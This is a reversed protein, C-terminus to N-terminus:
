ASKYLGAQRRLAKEAYMSQDAQHFLLAAAEAERATAFGISVRIPAETSQSNEVELLDHLRDLVKQAASEDANPLLIVFEDGGLRAVIDGRRVANRFVAAMRKLLRDGVTHGYQDNVQKLGDVDAVGLSLPFVNEQEMERLRAEFYRRNYLGTLIDHTSQYRLKRETNKHATIDRCIALGGAIQGEAEYWPSLTALLWRKEGERPQITIEVSTSQGRPTARAKDVLRNAEEPSLYERLNSSVLAGARVGFLEEAAPNVFVIEGVLNFLLTGEGQSELLLRFRAESQQLAEEARKRASIDTLVGQWVPGHTQEDWIMVAQDRVWIVSGDKRVLRYEMDFPEGTLNSQENREMVRARDDLHVIRSWLEPDSLWEQPTYGTLTEIMPSSYINSSHKDVRDVYIVASIQEVMTRYRVEASRLLEEARKQETIDVISVIVRGYDKEHGPVVQWRLLIDFREGDLRANVGHTEFAAENRALALFERLWIAQCDEPAIRQLSGLLEERNAARYMVVTAQNVDLVHIDAIYQYITEPHAEFYVQIDEVGQLCLADIKQKVKSFDEEWLSFPSNEFLYRYRTQSEELEEQAAESRRLERALFVLLLAGGGLIFVVDGYRDWRVYQNIDDVSTFLWYDTGIFWLVSLVFYLALVRAATQNTNKKTQM